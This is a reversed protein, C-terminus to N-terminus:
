SFPFSIVFKKFDVCWMAGWPFIHCPNKVRIIMHSDICM